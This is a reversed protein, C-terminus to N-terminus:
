VLYARYIIMLKSPYSTDTAWGCRKLESFAERVTKAELVSKYRDSEMKKRHFRFCDEYDKFVAFPSTHLVARGNIHEWSPINVSEQGKRAKIGFLNNHRIALQSGGERRAFGSEHIAQTVSVPIMLPYEEGYVDTAIEKLAQLTNLEM